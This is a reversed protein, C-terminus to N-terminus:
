QSFELDQWETQWTTIGAQHDYAISTIPTRLSRTQGGATLQDVTKGLTPYPISYLSAGGDETTAYFEGFIGCDRLSWTATRRPQLYWACALAHLYSL